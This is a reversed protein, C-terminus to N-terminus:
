LKRLMFFKLKELSPWTNSLVINLGRLELTKLNSCQMLILSAEFPENDPHNFLKLSHLNQFNSSFLPEILSTKFPLCLELRRINTCYETVQQLYRQIMDHCTSFRFDLVLAEFYKRMLRLRKHAELLTKCCYNDSVCLGFIKYINTYKYKHQLLSQLRKCTESLNELSENDCRDFVERICDDNLDFFTSTTLVDPEESKGNAKFSNWGYAIEASIGKEMKFARHACWDSEFTVYGEIQNGSIEISEIKGYKEFIDYM